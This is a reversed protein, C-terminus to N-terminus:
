ELNALLDPDVHRYHTHMDGPLSYIDGYCETLFRERDRPASLQAGEFTMRELPFVEDLGYAWDCKFDDDMNDLAYVVSRAQAEDYTLMGGEAYAREVYRDFLGAVTGFRADDKGIYADDGQWFALSPEREADEMMAKRASQAAAFAEHPTGTAYDYIFLDLFCPVSEDAYCFRVQRCFAYRDYVVTMRYRDSEAVLEQLKLIDGRMMGLDVDDDWPVFGNHREAGLLTGFAMWYRLGNEACLADFEHLLQACGLQLVRLGGTAEPFVSFFRKKADEMTEGENRYSEWAFMKMQMDHAMLQGEIRELREKVAASDDNLEHIRWTLDNRMDVFATYMEHFSRSSPPLIGRLKGLLGM